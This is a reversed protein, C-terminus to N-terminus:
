GAGEGAGDGAAYEGDGAILAVTRGDGIAAYSGIAAYGDRPAM